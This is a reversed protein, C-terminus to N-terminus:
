RGLAVLEDVLDGDADLLGDDVAEGLGDRSEDRILAKTEEAVLSEPTLDNM